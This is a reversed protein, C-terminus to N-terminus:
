CRGSLTKKKIKLLWQNELTIRNKWLELYNCTFEKIQYFLNKIYDKFYDIYKSNKEQINKCSIDGLKWLENRLWQQKNLLNVRVKM